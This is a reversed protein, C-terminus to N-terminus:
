GARLRRHGCVSHLWRPAADRARRTAGLVVNEPPDAVVDDIVQVKFGAEALSALAPALMGSKHLFADTVLCLNKQVFRERLIPGLRRAGGYEVLLAPVTRFEFTNM